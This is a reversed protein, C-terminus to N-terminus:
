PVDFPGLFGFLKDCKAPKSHPSATVHIVKKM